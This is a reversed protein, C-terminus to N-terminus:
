KLSNERIGPLLAYINQGSMEDFYRKIDLTARWKEPNDDSWGYRLLVDIWRKELICFGTADALADCLQILRDYDSMPQCLAQGVFAREEASVDHWGILSDLLPAPFSHTLCIRAVETWGRETCYRYGDLLHRAYTKGPWRGIDHLLGLVYARDADMGCAAAIREAAQAVNRSHDIWPGPNSRGAWALSEEAVARSPFSEPM